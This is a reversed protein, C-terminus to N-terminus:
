HTTFYGHTRGDNRRKERERLGLSYEFTTGRAARMERNRLTYCDYRVCFRLREGSQLSGSRARQVHAPSPCMGGVGMGALCAVAAPRSRPESGHDAWALPVFWNRLLM